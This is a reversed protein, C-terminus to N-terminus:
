ALPLIVLPDTTPRASGAAPEVTLGVRDTEDGWAAIVPQMRGASDPKLLGAPRPDGAGMLWLEYTRSEPLGALGDGAFVLRGQSKSSIVTAVGDGSQVPQTVKRADSAALVVAVDQNASEAQQLRRQLRDAETGSTIAVAASAAVVGAALGAALGLRWRRWTAWWMGPRRRRAAGGVRRDRLAGVNTAPPFQRVQDIQGLVAARLRPPPRVAVAAALRGATTQLGRVEVACAPCRSLHGEFQRRDRAPLADLAYAGALTHLEERM